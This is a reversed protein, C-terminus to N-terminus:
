DDMIRVHGKPCRGKTDEYWGPFDDAFQQWTVWCDKCYSMACERCLFPAFERDLAYLGDADSARLASELAAVDVRAAPLVSHTMRVPGDVVLRLNERGVLPLDDVYAQGHM